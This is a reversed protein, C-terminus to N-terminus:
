CSTPLIPVSSQSLAQPSMNLATLRYSDLGPYLSIPLPLYLNETPRYFPKHSNPQLQGDIVLHDNDATPSQQLEM